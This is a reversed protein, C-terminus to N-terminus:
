IDVAVSSICVTKDGRGNARMGKYGIGRGCGRAIVWRDEKKITKVKGSHLILLIM